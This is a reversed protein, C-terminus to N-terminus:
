IKQRVCCRVSGIDEFAQAPSPNVSFRPLITSTSLVTVADSLSPLLSTNGPIYAELAEEYAIVARKLAETDRSVRADQVKKTLQRLADAHRAALVDFRQFAEEPASASLMAAELFEQAEQLCLAFAYAGSVHM